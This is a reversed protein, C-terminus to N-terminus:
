LFELLDGDAVDDFDVGSVDAISEWLDAEDVSERDGDINELVARLGAKLRKPGSM